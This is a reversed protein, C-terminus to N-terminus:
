TQFLEGIRPRIRGKVLSQVEFAALLRKFNGFNRRSQKHFPAYVGFLDSLLSLYTEFFTESLM